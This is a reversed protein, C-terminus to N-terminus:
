VIMQMTTYVQLRLIQSTNVLVVRTVPSPAQTQLLKALPVFPAFSKDQLHGCEQLVIKAIVKKMMTPRVVVTRLINVLMAILAITQDTKIKIIAV